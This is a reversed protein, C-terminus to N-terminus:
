QNPGLWAFSSASPSHFNSHVTFKTYNQLIIHLKVNNVKRRLCPPICASFNSGRLGRACTEDRSGFAKTFNCVSINTSIKCNIKMRTCFKLKSNIYGLNVYCRSIVDHNSEASISCGLSQTKTCLFPSLVIKFSHLHM